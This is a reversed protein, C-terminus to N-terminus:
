SKHSDEDGEGEGVEEERAVPSLGTAREMIADGKYGRYKEYNWLMWQHYSAAFAGWM